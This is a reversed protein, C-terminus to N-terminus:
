LEGIEYTYKEFVWNVSNTRIEESDYKLTKGNVSVPVCGKFKHFKRIPKESDVSKNTFEQIDISCKISKQEGLNILGKYSAAIIWPRILGSSFDLNTEM